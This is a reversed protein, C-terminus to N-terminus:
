NSGIHVRRMAGRSLVRLKEAKAKWFKYVRVEMIRIGMAGVPIVARWRKGSCGLGGFTLGPCAVRSPGRCLGHVRAHGRCLVCVRCLHDRVRGLALCPCLCPVSACCSIGYVPAYGSEDCASECANGPGHVTGNVSGNEYASGPVSRGGDDGVGADFVM